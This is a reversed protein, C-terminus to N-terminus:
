TSRAVVIFRSNMACQVFIGREMARNLQPFGISQPCSESALRVANRHNRVASSFPRFPTGTSPRIAQDPAGAVSRPERHWRLSQRHAFHTLHQPELMRKPHAQPLDAFGRADALRHNSYTRRALTIPIVQGSGSAISSASSSRRSNGTGHSVRRTRRDIPALNVLLHLPAAHRQHQQPIPAIPVPKMALARAIATEPYRASNLRRSSSSRTFRCITVVSPLTPNTARATTYAMIPHKRSNAASCEWELSAFPNAPASLNM